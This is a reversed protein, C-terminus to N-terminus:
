WGISFVTVVQFDPSRRSSYSPWFKVKYWDCQVKRQIWWVTLAFIAKEGHFPYNILIIIILLLGNFSMNIRDYISLLFCLLSCLFSQFLPFCINSAAAPSCSQLGCLPPPCSSSFSLTANVKNSGVKLDLYELDKKLQIYTDDAKLHATSLYIM